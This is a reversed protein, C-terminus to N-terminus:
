DFIIALRLVTRPGGTEATEEAQAANGIKHVRELVHLVFTSPTANQQRCPMAASRRLHM